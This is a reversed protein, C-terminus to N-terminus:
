SKASRRDAGFLFPHNSPGDASPRKSGGHGADCEGKEKFLVDKFPLNDEVTIPRQECEIDALQRGEPRFANLRLWLCRLIPYLIM